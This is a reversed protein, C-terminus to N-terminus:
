AGGTVPMVDVPSGHVFNCALSPAHLRLRLGSRTILQGEARPTIHSLGNITVAPRSGGRYRAYCGSPMRARGCDRRNVRHWGDCLILTSRRASCPLRAHLCQVPSHRLPRARPVTAGDILTKQRREGRARPLAAASLLSVCCAGADGACRSAVQCGRLLRCGGPLSDFWIALARKFYDFAPHQTMEQPVPAHPGVAAPMRGDCRGQVAPGRLRRRSEICM